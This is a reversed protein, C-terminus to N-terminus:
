HIGPSLYLSGESLYLFQEVSDQIDKGDKQATILSDLALIKRGVGEFATRCKISFSSVDVQDNLTGDSSIVKRTKILLTHHLRLCFPCKQKVAKAYSEYSTHHDQFEKQRPRQASLAKSFVSRQSFKPQDFISICRSCLM